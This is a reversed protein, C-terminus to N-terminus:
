LRSKKEYVKCAAELRPAWEASVSLRDKTPLYRWDKAIKIEDERWRQVASEIWAGIASATEAVEELPVQHGSREIRVSKVQESMMGGSGGIGAGTRQLIEACLEPKSIPSTGGFVYLVSPRVHDLLKWAIVPESRYFPSTKSVPGIVDAQFLPEHLPGTTTEQQGLPRHGGFNSRVYQMVEQHKTSTLTVPGNHIDGTESRPNQPYLATPLRRYGHLAWRELVREDWQKYTKRAAKIAASRSSWIDRRKLSLKSLLPGYGTFTDPVIVPEILILTTFLRPHMLSLLVIQGAGMSHGVGIIPRPMEDRFQNIMYLLDRSHDLWSPDNGLLEENMVGSAGLNAADATWISGIRIGNKKCKALLDEWLPEYLEKPFGGGPAGIITVDGPQPNLHDIPVHKKVALKLCAAQSVTARPYERIYQGDIIHETVTFPFASVGSM